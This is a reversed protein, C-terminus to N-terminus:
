RALRFLIVSETRTVSRSTRELHDRLGTYHDLWWRAPGVFAIYEAGASQLRNLEELAMADDDPCGWYQGDHELFPVSRRSSYTALGIADDVCIFIGDAPIHPDVEEKAIRNLRSQLQLRQDQKWSMAAHHVAYVPEHPTQWEEVFLGGRPFVKVDSRAVTPEMLFRPGTQHLLDLGSTMARPLRAIVEALWPHGPAAGFMGHAIENSELWTAFADNDVCLDDLNRVCELDADLYVGGYRWVVEYSVIDGRQAPIHSRAYEAQNILSPLNEDTWIVHRWGPHQELWGRRWDVYRPPM